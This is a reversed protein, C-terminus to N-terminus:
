PRPPKPVQNSDNGATADPRLTAYYASLMRRLIEVDHLLSTAEESALFGLDRALLAQSHFESASGMAFGVFQKLQAKSGRGCGEAINHPVSAMSRRMQSTLGFLEERPFQRTLEYM